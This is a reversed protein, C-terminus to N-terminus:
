TTVALAAAMAALRDLTLAPAADIWVGHAPCNPASKSTCNCAWCERCLDGRDFISSGHACVLPKSRPWGPCYFAGHIVQSYGLRGVHPRLNGKEDLNIARRCRPCNGGGYRGLSVRWQAPADERLPPRDVPLSLYFPNRLYAIESPTPPRSGNDVSGLMSNCRDCLLGRVARDSIWDDHDIALKNLPFHQACIRCRGSSEIVLRKYEDCSLYFSEHRGSHDGHDWIGGTACARGDFHM